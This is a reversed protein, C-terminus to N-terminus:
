ATFQDMGRGLSGAPLDAWMRHKFSAYHFSIVPIHIFVFERLFLFSALSTMAAAITPMATDAAAPTRCVGVLTPANMSHGGPLM